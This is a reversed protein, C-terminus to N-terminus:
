TVSNGRKIADEWRPKKVAGGAEVYCRGEKEQSATFNYQPHYSGYSYNCRLPHFHNARM